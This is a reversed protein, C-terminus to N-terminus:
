IISRMIKLGTMIGAAFRERSCWFAPRWTTTVTRCWRAGKKMAFVQQGFIPKQPLGKIRLEDGSLSKAGKDPFEVGAALRDFDLSELLAPLDVRQYLAELSKQFAVDKSKHDHVDKSIENIEKFWQDLLPAVGAGFLRSSWLGEILAMAVLSQLGNRAFQRRTSSRTEDLM